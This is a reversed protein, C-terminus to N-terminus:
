RLRVPLADLGRVIHAAGWILSASPVALALRPYRDFLAAFAIEAEMRALQSGFCYHLGDGFAIHPNPVRELDLRDPDVFLAADRNASAIVPFVVDGRSLRRGHLVIDDSVFRATAMEVPACFRLLEEIGTRRVGPDSCFQEVASNELLALIGSGILNTTTEHGAFILLHVMAVFQADNLEDGDARAQALATLMDDRPATRRNLVARMVCAFFASRAALASESHRSLSARSWAQLNKWDEVPFGLLECIVALPLPQAFSAVLDTYDEQALLDLLQQAIAEIRPRLAEITQGTFARSAITRLRRHAPDDLNLMSPGFGDVPPSLLAASAASASVGANCPNRVFRGDDKLCGVVDDYRTLLWAKGLRPLTAQFVPAEARLRSYYSFPDRKHRASLLEPPKLAAIM